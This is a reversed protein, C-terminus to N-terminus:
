RRAGERDGERLYRRCAALIGVITAAQDLLVESDAGSGAQSEIGEAAIQAVALAEDMSSYRTPRRMARERHLNIVDAM